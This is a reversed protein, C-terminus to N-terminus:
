FPARVLMDSSLRTETNDIIPRGPMYDVVIGRRGNDDLVFVLRQGAAEQVQRAAEQFEPKFDDIKLNIAARVWGNGSAKAAARNAELQANRERWQRDREAYGLMKEDFESPFARVVLAWDSDEEFFRSGRGNFNLAKLDAPMAAFREGSIWFGGHSATSCDYIGPALRNWGGQPSGWPTSIPPREDDSFIHPADTFLDATM